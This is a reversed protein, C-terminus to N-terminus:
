YVFPILRYPTRKSWEVWEEKFEQQMVLDENPIRLVLCSLLFSIYGLYTVAFLKGGVSAWAGSEMFWSGRCFIQSTCAGSFFLVSGVYGPHRVISYPGDTILKHGKRVSLQFTFQRGLQRYAALRILVGAYMM